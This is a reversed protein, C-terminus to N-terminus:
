VRFLKPFFKPYSSVVFPKEEPIIGAVPSALALIVEDPLYKVVPINSDGVEAKKILLFNLFIKDVSIQCPVNNVCSAGITGAVLPSEMDPDSDLEFTKFPIQIM